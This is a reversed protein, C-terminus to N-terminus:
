GPKVKSPVQALPLIALLLSASLVVWDLAMPLVLSSGQLNRKEKIRGKWLTKNKGNVECLLKLTAVCVWPNKQIKKIKKKKRKKINERQPKERIERQNRKPSLDLM